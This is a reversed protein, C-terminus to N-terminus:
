QGGAPVQQAQGETSEPKAAFQQTNVPGPSHQNQVGGGSLAAMSQVISARQNPDEM